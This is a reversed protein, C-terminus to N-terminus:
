TVMPRHFYATKVEPMESECKRETWGEEWDEVNRISTVEYDNADWVFKIGDVRLDERGTVVRGDDLLAM